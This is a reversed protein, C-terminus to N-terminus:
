PMPPPGSPPMQQPPVGQLPQQSMDPTVPAQPPQTPAQPQPQQGTLQLNQQSVDGGQLDEPATLTNTKVGLKASAKALVQSAVPILEKLDDKEEIAKSLAVGVRQLDRLVPDYQSHWEGHLIKRIQNVLEEAIRAIQRVGMGGVDDQLNQVGTLVNAIKHGLLSKEENLLFLKFGM